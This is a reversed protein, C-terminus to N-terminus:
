ETTKDVASKASASDRGRLNEIWRRRDRAPLERALRESLAGVFGLRESPTLADYHLLARERIEEIENRKQEWPTV